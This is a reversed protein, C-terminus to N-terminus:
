FFFGSERKVDIEVKSIEEFTVGLNSLTESLSADVEKKSIKEKGDKYGVMLNNGEAGIKIVDGKKIDTILQSIPIEQVDEGKGVILSYISVIILFILVVAIIQSSFQRIPGRGDKEPGPAPKKKKTNLLNAM